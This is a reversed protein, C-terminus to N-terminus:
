KGDLNLTWPLHFPSDARNKLSWYCDVRDQVITRADWSSDSRSDRFGSYAELFGACLDDWSDFRSQILKGVERSREVLEKRSAWGLVMAMGLLSSARCLQWATSVKDDPDPLGPGQTMYEVTDLLGAYDQIGWAGRLSSKVIFRSLLSRSLGGFRIPIPRKGPFVRGFQATSQGWIAHTGALWREVDNRVRNSERVPYLALRILLLIVVVAALLGLGGVWPFWGQFQAKAAASGTMDAYYDTRSLGLQQWELSERDQQSLTWPAWRGVPSTWLLTAGDYSTSDSNIRAAIREGSDLTLVQYLTDDALTFYEGEDWHQTQTVYFTDMSEMDAVSRALPTDGEAATGVADPALGKWQQYYTWATGTLGGAVLRCVIALIILGIVLGIRLVKGLFNM